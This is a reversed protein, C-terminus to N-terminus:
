TMVAISCSHCLAPTVCLSLRVRRAGAGGRSRSSPLSLGFGGALRELVGSPRQERFAPECLGRDFVDGFADVDGDARKEPV